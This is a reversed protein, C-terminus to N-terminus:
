SMVLCICFYRDHVHAFIAKCLLNYHKVPYAKCTHESLLCPVAHLPYSVMGSDYFLAIGSAAVLPAPMLWLPLGCALGGAGCSLM